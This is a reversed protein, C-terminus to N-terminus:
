NTIRPRRSTSITPVPINLYSHGHGSRLTYMKHLHCQRYCVDQQLKRWTLERGDRSELPMKLESGSGGLRGVMAPPLVAVWGAFEGELMTRSVAAPSPASIPPPPPSSSPPPRQASEPVAFPDEEEFRRKSPVLPRINGSIPALPARAAM